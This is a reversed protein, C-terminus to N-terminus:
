SLGQRYHNRHPIERFASRPQTLFQYNKGRRKLTRPERRNPRRPIKDSALCHFFERLLYERHSPSHASALVVAWHRLAAITGSFSIHTPDISDPASAQLILLRVLNYAIIHMWLEKHILAPTQCRLVDMAMTIKIDRLFLEVKWRRLYLDALAQPPYALPDLLTTALTLSRTRFGPRVVTVHIHRVRLTTPLAQWKEPTLWPPCPGRRIWEVLDDGRSFKQILRAGTSRRQHLRMVCDVQRGGLFWFHAFSCFGRDALLVDNPKLRHWLTRLLTGEHVRYPGYALELWAGSVLSFLGVMRMIPFGCGPKQQPPQPYMAQNEPTDPMSVCTGDAVVVRRGMWLPFPRAAEELHQRLPRHVRRLWALPLRARAQCYASTNSSIRLRRHFCLWAQANALADRCSRNPDLMQWLFLWFTTGPDFVRCRFGQPPPFAPLLSGFLRDLAIPSSQILRHVASHLALAAM